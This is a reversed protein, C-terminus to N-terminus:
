VEAMAWAVVRGMEEAPIDWAPEGGQLCLGSYPRLLIQSLYYRGGTFNRKGDTIDTFEIGLKKGYEAQFRRRVEPDVIGRGAEEGWTLCDNLGYADGPRLIRAEIDRGGHSKVIIVGM